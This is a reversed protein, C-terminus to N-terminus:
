QHHLHIRTRYGLTTCFDLLHDAMILPDELIPHDELPDATVTLIMPLESAELLGQTQFDHLDELHTMLPILTTPLRSHVDLFAVQAGLHSKILHHFTLITMTM